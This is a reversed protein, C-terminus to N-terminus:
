TDLNEVVLANREIFERRPEVQDGMLTTFVEDAGIVDEIKVQLLSRTTSDMTTEWLQDPNMEGLGKYRQISLGQEAEKLLWDFALKLSTIAQKRENRQIYASEELSTLQELASLKKYDESSFFEPAFVNSSELGHISVTVKAGFHDDNAPFLEFNYETVNADDSNLGAVLNDFWAKIVSEDECDSETILPMYRIADVITPHYRKCLRKYARNMTIYCDVMDKLAQNEIPQQGEGAILQSNELALELLYAERETEDKLYRELKGKKIKYLPPQAIYIHGREILELMQRYFFTLLLTRIHAGDVDADTMIIIRHYRLKDPDFEERGIGCGLATILTGVEVSSLMKDFRAKEVNLIKGKLPLIAQNKRDRGQKASGGASDGEVLFLESLAPDKEQCDALKGPLGAIDLATKRRTLERAKRAAERACAAEIVKACIAKAEAPRELLFEQIKESVCSEVASKVESSVLKDKTQSSFKPDPLKISLVATLGERVDEGTITVKAKAAMGQKEMHQNFSRTLAARFGSLHTGGDKQPINNTFCFINEQYSDNWQMALEVSVEEKNTEIDIVTEHLPTKNRNLHKVFASIGGKYEFTDTKGSREDLLEIRVGSNLFSLERLRKALIDYHFELLKFIAVNPLFTVETGTKDSAEGKELPAVPDGNKYTQNHVFGERYIKLDLRESLANVVSVGVGHLGGSVKYSNDDFKGGAHLVTMIVEAASIGEEEHIGVPVGRGNDTVSISENSHITVKIHDCHGALAEDISNDVVEFVMHHLGTGDETDGIYMGPRKRVAELGKLVKIKSSDYTNEESM